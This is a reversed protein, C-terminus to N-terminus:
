ALLSGHVINCFCQAGVRMVSPLLTDQILDQESGTWKKANDAVRDAGSRLALQQWTSALRVTHPSRM